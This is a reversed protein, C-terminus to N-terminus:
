IAHSAAGQPRNWTEAPRHQLWPYAREFAAAVRILTSEQWHPALLQMGVPLGEQSFGCPVSVAPVGTLNASVTFVDSLYMTLPDAKEGFRFAPTPTTPTLLIDVQEFVQALEARQAERVALARGYWADYYGASLVYTGLLIRRQVEEGFGEARTERYLRDLGGREVRRGYRIGDFRSLNSSAEAGALVYYVSIGARTLPLEVPVRAAGLGELVSFAEELSRQVDPSSGQDDLSLVGVRLGRIDGTLDAHYSPVPVPACTADHPDAGSIVELVAALDEVTHAFPGVQDLSSGFATLGYRSVRGYTPKLGLLGCFAAPQRISGGTDSGLAVPVVGASVAVASGGSSGGPVRDLAWPNLCPGFASNENSSGMAFEDLNTKGIIIAGAERLRKVVTADYPSLYDGLIRSGCTLRAGAVAINDKVAVPLGLLPGREGRARRADAEAAQTLAADTLLTIFANLPQAQEARELTARTLEVSSLARADLARRLAALTPRESQM